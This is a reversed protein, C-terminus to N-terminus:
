RSRSRAVAKRWVERATTRAGASLRPTFVDRGRPMSRLDDWSWIGAKLGAMHAVGLASLEAADGRVVPVAILDALNRMLADNRTPGGDVHLEHLERGGRAVAEVVDAVQHVMSDLAARALQARGVGLTLGSILGVAERDWWPAGLGTFAPVLTVGDNDATEGLAALEEPSIGLLGSLWKLTQGCSRINGEAAHAPKEFGWGITLCLGSDIGEPRAILGMISSGTGMTAKIHGPEYAGHAFLASHSDGMAALVPVGDPLPALGKVVPFPGVSSAVRPLAARPVGFVALLEDDWDGSFVNLLQTRSANGIEIADDRTFRSMIWSDITGLCLEGAEARKRDPDIDDLIASAKLASFMPDLPLGSKARVTAEVAPTRLRECKDISRLDRWSLVRSLPEGTRRNWAVVSERQVSLGVAVVRAPDHDRLTERVAAQVCAWIEMPDQEVWGPKPHTEGLPAFGRAVIRGARDVLLCKTSGTGEDIALILSDDAM